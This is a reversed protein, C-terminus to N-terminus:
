KKVFLKLIRIRDVVVVEPRRVFVMDYMFLENKGYM